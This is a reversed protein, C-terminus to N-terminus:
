KCCRVGLSYDYYDRPHSSVSSDCGERTSRAYFGGLFTGEPDDVWEDLNGVMDYIRDTGWNSTCDKTAGTLRLVPDTGRELILNLRPDTHGVSSNGHLIFAPHYYRYVNCVGLVFQEGYPFKSSRSGKCATVWEDESCLRKGANKCARGALSYSLYGQPVVGPRSVARPDFRGERQLEPLPPLPLNQAALDGVGSREVQWLRHLTRSLRPDPPYYPSLASGTARDVVSAEYRDICFDRVRAMESPCGREVRSRDARADPSALPLMGLLAMLVLLPRKLPLDGM